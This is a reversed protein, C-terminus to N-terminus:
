KLFQVCHGSSIYLSMKQGFSTSKKFFINLDADFLQVTKQGLILAPTVYAFKLINPIQSQNLNNKFFLLLRDCYNLPVSIRTQFYRWINLNKYFFIARFTECEYDYFIKLLESLFNINKKLLLNIKLM